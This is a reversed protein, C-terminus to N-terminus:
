SSPACARKVMDYDLANLKEPRNIRITATHGDVSLEIRSDGTDHM